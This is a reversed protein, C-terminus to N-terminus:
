PLFKLTLIKKATMELNIWGESNQKLEKEPIEELNVIKINSWKKGSKYPLKFEKKQLEVPSFHEAPNSQGGNFRLKTNVTEDLTNFLRVVWGKRDESRKVASVVVSDSEIELFSKKLSETGHESPSIQCVYLHSNFRDSAQWINGTKWDGKHPMIGYRFTHKGLCQSSKDINSYDTMGQTVCIRLPFCRLLTLDLTRSPDDEAEYAKLGENLLALGKQGDSIDVFNNMPQEPQVDESFLSPDPLKIERELVDFQGQAHVTDTKIMSPFCVQLYHDTVNNDLETTIEIWPQDKRLTIYNTVPYPKMNRSRHKDDPTRSEPLKWNICVKFTTQLPGSTELIVDAKENLTTYVKENTVNKHEWPNGVESSDKFYGMKSFVMGTNKDYINLTGNSNVTVSFYENEMTQPGTLMSTKKKRIDEKVPKVFFSSYGFSPINTLKALATFRKMECMNATDNPSQVVQHYSDQSDIIQLPLKTGKDDFMEIDKAEWKQPVQIYVKTVESREFSAPNYAVVPLTEDDNVAKSFDISGAITGLATESVCHAIERCQRSRYIMDKSINERSCGGISDHGHNQLLWNYANDIFGRPYDAGLMSSFVALPEAVSTLARETIYNDKKIDSRASIIWGYLVSTSGETFYHRMEGQVTPIDEPINECVLSQFDKFNSHIVEAKGKLAKNCDRIMEVERIDPCSSDHGCSWLRHPTSWDENQEKIAQFAREPINNKYYEFKPHTYQADSLHSESDIMKFLGSGSDWNVVRDDVDERNYYAPRQIVYWVNYRPRKGLRSTVLKSGDPGKWMIESRPAIRTNIGRYFGIFNIGFGNYIQPMQSIQGWSFPSYGTKSVKGFQKAIKHGLLLNRILSEGSVSFEDPLCFWPGVFLRDEHIHKKIVDKKEPRIELYDQLPITQSDLHFSKFEPEKDLIDLLMDMMYVLMYRTRQMSFRWERDWHTNSIFHCKIAGQQEKKSIKEFKEKKKGDSSKLDSRTFERM